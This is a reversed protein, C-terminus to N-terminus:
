ILQSRDGDTYIEYVFQSILESALITGGWLTMGAETSPLRFETLALARPLYLGVAGGVGVHMVLSPFHTLRGVRGPGIAKAQIWDVIYTTLFSVLAGGAAIGLTTLPEAQGPLKLPLGGVAEPGGAMLMMKPAVAYGVAAATMPRIMKDMDLASDMTSGVFDFLAAMTFQNVSCSSFLFKM